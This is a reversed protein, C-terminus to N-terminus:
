RSTGKYMLSARRAVELETIDRKRARTEDGEISQYRKTQERPPQAPTTTTHLLAAFVTDEVPEALTAESKPVRAHLIANVYDKLSM